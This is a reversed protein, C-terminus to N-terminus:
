QLFYHKASSLETPWKKKIVTILLGNIKKTIQFRRM